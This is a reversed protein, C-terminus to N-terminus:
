ARHTGLGVQRAISQIKHDSPVILSTVWVLQGAGLHIHNSTVAFALLRWDSKRIARGLLRLYHDRESEHIFRERDVFRSILHYPLGEQFSRAERM